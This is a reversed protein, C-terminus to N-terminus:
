SGADGRTGLVRYIVYRTKLLPLDSAYIKQLRLQEAIEPRREPIFSEVESLYEIGEAVIYQPLTQERLHPLIEYSNILGDLNVVRQKAYYGLVGANWSGVLADEPVNEEMWSAAAQMENNYSRHWDRSDAEGDWYFIATQAITLAVVTAVGATALALRARETVLREGVFGLAAAVLTAALVVLVIESEVLWWRIMAYPIEVPYVAISVAANVLAFVLVYAFPRLGGYRERLLGFWARRGLAAPILVFALVLAVFVAPRLAEDSVLRVGVIWFPDTLRSEVFWGLWRYYDGVVTAVFDLSFRGDIGNYRLYFETELSKVAGSIPLFHGTVARNIAAYVLPPVVAVGAVVAGLLWKRALVRGPPGLTMWGVLCPILLLANVRALSTLGLLVGLVVAYRITPRRLFRLEFWAISSLLLFAYLSSEMGWTRTWVIGLPFLFAGAAVLGTGASVTRRLLHFLLMSSAFLFCAAVAVFVRALVDRDTIGVWSLVEAIGTLIAAWLPQVGNTDHVRDFTWSGAEPFNAAVGFYYFADDSRHVFEDRPVFAQAVTVVLGAGLLLTARRPFTSAFLSEGRQRPAHM